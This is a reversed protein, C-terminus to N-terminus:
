RADELAAQGMGVLVVLAGIVAVSIGLPRAGPAEEDGVMLAGTTVVGIGSIITLAPRHCGTVLLAALVVHRM